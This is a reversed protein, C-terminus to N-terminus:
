KKRRSAVLGTLALGLLIMTSPEPIVLVTPFEPDVGIWGGMGAVESTTLAHDWAIFTGIQGWQDEWNNDTLLHVDPLLAFRGDVPQGAGDLFLVGDVYVRFFNGNDVSLVIRHWTSPDYRESSYGADGVGIAGNPDSWLDGDNDHAGAATQYLSNWKPDNPDNGSTQVYDWLFTYENVESGGGNPAIGHTATFYDFSRSQATGNDQYLTANSVSRIQIAPGLLDNGNANPFSNVMDPGRTGAMQEEEPTNPDDAGFLWLGTMGDPVNVTVQASAVNAVALMGVVLLVCKKSMLKEGFCNM